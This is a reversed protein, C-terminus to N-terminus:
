AVEGRPAEDRRLYGACYAASLARFITDRVFSDTIVTGGAEDGVYAVIADAIDFADTRVSEGGHAVAACVIDGPKM